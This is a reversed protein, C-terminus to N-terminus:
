RVIFIPSFASGIAFSTSSLDFRSGNPNQTQYAQVLAHYRRGSVLFGAPLIVQNRSTRLSVVYRSIYRDGPARSIEYLIVNYTSPQGFAPAAWSFTPSNSVDTPAFQGDVRILRPISLRPSPFQGGDPDLWDRVSIRPDQAFFLPGGDQAPEFGGDLSPIQVARNGSCTLEGFLPSLTPNPFALTANLNNQVVAFYLSPSDGPVRDGFTEGISVSCNPPLGDLASTLLGPDMFLMGSGHTSVPLLTAAVVDGPISLGSLEARGRVILESFSGTTRLAKHWIRFPDAPGISGGSIVEIPSSATVTLSGPVSFLGAELWSGASRSSIVVRDSNVSPVALTISFSAISGPPVLPTPRGSGAVFSVDEGDTNMEVLLIRGARRLEALWPGGPASELRFEPGGDSSLSYRGGGDFAFVATVLEGDHLYAEVGGDAQIYLARDVIWITRGADRVGTGGDAGGDLLGSDSGNSSPGGGTRGGSVLAGGASGGGAAVRCHGAICEDGAACPPLAEGCRDGLPEPCGVLLVVLVIGSKSM